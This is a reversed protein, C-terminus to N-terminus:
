AAMATTVEGSEEGALELELLRCPAAEGRGASFRPVVGGKPRFGLKALVRGSAPNDLFHGAGLRKLRLGRRAPRQRLQAVAVHHPEVGNRPRQRHKRGVEVAAGRHHGVEGGVFEPDASFKKGGETAMGSRGVGAARENKSRRM